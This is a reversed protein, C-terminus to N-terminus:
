IEQKEELIYDYKDDMLFGSFFDLREPEKVLIDLAMFM